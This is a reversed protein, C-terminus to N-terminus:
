KKIEIIEKSFEVTFEALGIFSEYFNSYFVMFKKNKDWKSHRGINCGRCGGVVMASSGDDSDMM